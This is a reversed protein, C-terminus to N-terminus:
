RREYIDSHSFRESAPEIGAMEVKGILPKDMIQSLGRKKLGPLNLNVVEDMPTNNQGFCDVFYVQIEGM